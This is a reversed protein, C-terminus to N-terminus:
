SFEIIGQLLAASYLRSGALVLPQGASGDVANVGHEVVYEFCCASLPEDGDVWGVFHVWGLHDM